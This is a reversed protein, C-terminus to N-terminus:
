PPKHDCLIQIRKLNPVVVWVQTFKQVKLKMDKLQFYKIINNYTNLKSILIKINKFKKFKDKKDKFSKSPRVNAM